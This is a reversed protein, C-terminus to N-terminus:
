GSPTRTRAAVEAADYAELDERKPGDGEFQTGDDGIVDWRAKSGVFIHETTPVDVDQDLLGVPIRYLTRADNHDPAPSGCVRCFATGYGSPREFTTVLDQGAVFRLGDFPIVIHAISGVGSAKRCLSCHCHAIGSHRGTIEFRM